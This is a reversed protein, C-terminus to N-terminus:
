AAVANMLDAVLRAHAADTAVVNAVLTVAPLTMATNTPEYGFAGVSLLTVAVHTLPGKTRTSLEVIPAYEPATPDVSTSELAKLASGRVIPTTEGPFKYTSLLEVNLTPGRQDRSLEEVIRLARRIKALSSSEMADAIADKQREPFSSIWHRVLNM